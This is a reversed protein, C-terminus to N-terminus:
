RAHNLEDSSVARSECQGTVTNQARSLGYPKCIMLSRFRLECLTMTTLSLRLTGFVSISHHSMHYSSIHRQSLGFGLPWPLWAQHAMPAMGPPSPHRPPEATCPEHQMAQYSINKKRRLMWAMCCGHRCCGHWAVDMGHLMRAMCCGHWSADM